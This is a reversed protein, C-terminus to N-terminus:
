KLEKLQRLFIKIFEKKLSYNDCFSMGLIEIFDQWVKFIKNQKEKIDIDELKIKETKFAANCALNSIYFPMVFLYALGKFRKFRRLLKYEQKTM